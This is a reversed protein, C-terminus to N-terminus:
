NATGLVAVTMALVLQAAFYLPTGWLASAPGPSVFQRRAVALDSLAFGLAGAFALWTYPLAWVAAACLLMVSIIAIYVFVPLRMSQPLHPSLWRLTLVSLILCPALAVILPLTHWPLQWFAVAYLLHGAAFAVLGALFAAEREFMLCLDGIACAVLGAFLWRGYLSDLAGLSLALWLFALAALPKFVLRGRPTAAITGARYDSLVLAPVSVLALLLPFLWTPTM